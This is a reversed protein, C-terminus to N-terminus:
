DIASQLTQCSPMISGKHGARSRDTSIPSLVLAMVQLIGRIRTLSLHYLLALLTAPPAGWRGNTLMRLAMETAAWLYGWARSGETGEAQRGGGLGLPYQRETSVSMVSEM